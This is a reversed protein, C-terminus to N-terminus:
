KEYYRVTERNTRIFRRIFEPPKPSEFQKGKSFSWNALWDSTDQVKDPFQYVPDKLAQELTILQYGRGKVDKGIQGCILTLSM